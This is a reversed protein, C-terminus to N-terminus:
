KLSPTIFYRGAYRAYKRYPNLSDCQAVVSGKMKDHHSRTSYDVVVVVVHYLILYSHVVQKGNLSSLSLM